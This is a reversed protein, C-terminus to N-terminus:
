HFSNLSIRKLYSVFKDALWGTARDFDSSQGNIAILDPVYRSVGDGDKLRGPKAWISSDEGELPMNGLDKREFWKQMTSADYKSPNAVQALTTQQILVDDALFSMLRSDVCYRLVLLLMKSYEKLKEKMKQILKWQNNGERNASQMLWDFDRAYLHKFPDTTDKADAKELELLEKEILVLEAQLYLLNRANLGRFRRVMAMEPYEGMFNAVQPYGRPSDSKALQDSVSLTQPNTNHM